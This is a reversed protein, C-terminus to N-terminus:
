SASPSVSDAGVRQPMFLFYGFGGALLLYVAVNVWGLGNLVGAVQALVAIVLGVASMVFSGILIARRAESEETNRAFWGLAAYGMLASGFSRAMLAGGDNLKVGYMSLAQEPM